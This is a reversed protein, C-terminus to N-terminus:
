AHVEGSYARDETVDFRTSDAFGKGQAAQESAADELLEVRHRLARCLVSCRAEDIFLSGRVIERLEEDIGALASFDIWHFDTVLKIQEEHSNKFPKSATKTGVLGAPKDFWLSTGSDYVPAAGVYELTDARRVM